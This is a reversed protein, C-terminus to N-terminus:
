DPPRALSPTQQRRRNEVRELRYREVAAPTFRAHMGRGETAHLKFRQVLAVVTRPRVGLVAAADQVSLLEESM